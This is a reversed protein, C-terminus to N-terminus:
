RQFITMGKNVDSHAMYFFDIGPFLYLLLIIFNLPWLLLRTLQLSIDTTPHKKSNRFAVLTTLIVLVACAFVLAYLACKVHDWISMTEAKVLRIQQYILVYGVIFAVIFAITLLISYKGWEFELSFLEWFSM